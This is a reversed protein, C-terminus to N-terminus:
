FAVRVGGSVAHRDYRQRGVEGDYYLYTSIRDSCQVAFGAGILMSDRGTEPGSVLFPPCDVDLFSGNLSYTTDGYEHRWAVRIEPKVIVNGVEWDYSARIGLASRVSEADRGDIKLPALSGSETFDDIAVLTYNFTATPGITLAGIKWDYGTGLLLNVEGGDTSGRATGQLAGRKTDYSNYGGNAAFDAYWGGAFATAYVGLRGGNVWVSGDNILKAGTGAYGAMVGVGFNPGVRYDLGVTFGGTTFDYGSANTSGGVNVWEGIGTVFAGWRRDEPPLLEKMEKYEKGDRIMGGSSDKGFDVPGSGKISLGAASFGSAGNRLEATRRQVNISQVDALSISIMYISTLEEPAILDFDGPLQDLKRSDLYDILDDGKPDSALCDLSEAVAQQNPTLGPLEAFSGRVLELAVDNASYVVTPVLITDSTFPNDENEFQGFVGDNATLFVIRDGRELDFNNLRVLQLTGDLQARGGVALLDHQGPQRGGIEIRLTGNPTQEYNGGVRITGPSNGPSVIGQNFVSGAIRGIGGLTAGSEVTVLGSGTGSGTTNNVLLTGAKVTTGGGYTNAGTLNLTGAGQKIVRGTGSITNGFTVANRRDFILLANNLVNSAISGTTGGDGLRLAGASITTMGTYTNTGTFTLTGAGQKSVVGTGSITNGFTVADSRDFILSANNLVNSAISGTTGGEGLRLAGASITTMGTYTNTGTFTLTGAGQKSVAGTGSITNRFTVADSRDFILSANNLVNSAISGTTGGDGLRLAGASITTTGSYTNNGTLTLRGAGIKTLAAPAGSGSFRGSFVADFGNTNITSTIGSLTADIGSTLNAGMIRVTGGDFNFAATGNGAEFGNAGGGLLLRGGKELNLMGTSGGRAALRVAGGVSVAGGAEINLTGQGDDGVILNGRNNWRSGAGTVKATGISGSESGLRGDSNSVVGGAEINLTGTGEDGVFLAGSNNWRSGAGTVTATGTGTSDSALFGDTNSVVGGAEINLTGTGNDGVFLYRSNNWQSDAGTVTATGTGGSALGLYGDTNSVVGGAEINLTGRNDGVFLIGSNSWRSGAGTVTVTGVGTPFSGISGIVSSVEGGAEIKLTGTGKDGVILNGSNKWQSGAGTVTTRGISGPETALRGNNNFVVGGAEINLIGTGEDGVILNGSNNWQSGVGTVTATGMGMSDSALFGETNSVVGGAEINLTGIGNDGVFLNGSNNWQSGAGTVTVTGVGNTDLGLFGETNSVLGGADIDLTGPATNGVTLNGVLIWSPSTAGGPVVDGTVLVQAHSISGCLASAIVMVRLLFRFVGGPEAPLASDVMGCGGPGQEGMGSFRTSRGKLVGKIAAWRDRRDQAHVSRVVSEGFAVSEEGADSM